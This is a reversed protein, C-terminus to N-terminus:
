RYDRSTSSQEYTNDQETSTASSFGPTATTPFTNSDAVGVQDWNVRTFAQAQLIFFVSHLTSAIYVERPIYKSPVLTLRLFNHLILLCEVLKDLNLIAKLRKKASHQSSTFSAVVGALNALFLLCLPVVV